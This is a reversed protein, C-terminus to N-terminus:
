ADDLHGHNFADYAALDLFGHGSYNFLIVKEEGSEKCALAEDIAARIAHSTEPAPLRGEVTAFQRAAEFVKVQHYAVADM